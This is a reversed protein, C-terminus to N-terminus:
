SACIVCKKLKMYIGNTTDSAQQLFVTDGALKIIDIPIRDRQAAFTTNMIPIYQHALDGSVSIVLIRSQLGTPADHRTTDAPKSDMASGGSYAITAKSIHELALTLAGAMQTTTTSSVDNEKTSAILERLSSLFSDEILAFPRYKNAREHITGADTM